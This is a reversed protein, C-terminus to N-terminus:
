VVVQIIGNGKVNTTLLVEMNKNSKAEKEEVIFVNPRIGKLKRNKMAKKHENIPFM